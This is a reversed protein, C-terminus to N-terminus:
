RWPNLLRVGTGAVAEVDRTVFTLDHELATAAMLGDIPPVPANGRLEGWRDAISPSVSIARDAFEEKLGSLWTSFIDAQARDGRRRLAQIGQRIEGLVLVSLTLDASEVSTSWARIAPACAPGKRLESVVNTDLLYRV